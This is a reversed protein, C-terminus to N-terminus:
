SCPCDVRLAVIQVAGQRSPPRGAKTAASVSEPPQPAAKRDFQALGAM